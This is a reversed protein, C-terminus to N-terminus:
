LCMVEIEAGEDDCPMRRETHKFKFKKRRILVSIMPNYGM